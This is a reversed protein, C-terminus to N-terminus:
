ESATLHVRGVVAEAALARTKFFQAWLWKTSAFADRRKM